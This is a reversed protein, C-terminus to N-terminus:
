ALGLLHRRRRQRRRPPRGPRVAVRRSVRV